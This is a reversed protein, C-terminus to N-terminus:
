KGVGYQRTIPTFIMLALSLGAGAATSESQTLHLHAVSNAGNSIVWAMGLLIAHRVVPPLKDVVGLSKGPVLPTPISM